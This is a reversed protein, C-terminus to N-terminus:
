MRPPRPVRLFRIGLLRKDNGTAVWVAEDPRMVAATESLVADQEAALRRAEARTDPLVSGARESITVETELYVEGGRSLEVRYVSPVDGDSAIKARRAM